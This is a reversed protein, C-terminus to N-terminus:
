RIEVDLHEIEPVKCWHRQPTATIFMQVFYVFAFFIGFPMMGVFLLKQYRGFEGVYTLVNELADSDDQNKKNLEEKADQVFFFSIIWAM